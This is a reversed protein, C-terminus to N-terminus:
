KSSPANRPQKASDSSPKTKCRTFDLSIRDFSFATLEAAPVTMCAHENRGGSSEKGRGESARGLRTQKMLELKGVRGVRSQGKQCHCARRAAATQTSQMRAIPVDDVNFAREQPFCM